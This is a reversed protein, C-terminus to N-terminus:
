AVADGDDGGRRVESAALRRLRSVLADACERM